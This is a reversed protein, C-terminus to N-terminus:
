MHRGGLYREMKYFGDIITQIDRVSGLALIHHSICLTEQAAKDSVPTDTVRIYNPRTAIVRAIMPNNSLTTPYVRALPIGEAQAASVFDTIPVNGCAAKNYRMAFLHVGHSVNPAVELINVCTLNGLAERLIEFNRRRVSQLQKFRGFRSVLLAAQYETPRCNWGLSCEDSLNAKRVRGVDHMAYVKEIVTEDNTTLAGGEGCALNKSSQFSFGALDGLSGAPKSNLASGHAQAADEVLKLGYRTALSRLSTMNAPHGFLHVALIARTRGPVIAEEVRRPDILLSNPDVDVFVVGFRRDLACTASAVFSFNPVVIEGGYDLGDHDLAAALGFRLADTGHPLLLCHRCGCYEAWLESFVRSNNNTGGERGALYVRALSFFDKWSRSYQSHIGKWPNRRTNRVAVGGNIALKTSEGVM